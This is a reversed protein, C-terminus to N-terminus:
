RIAKTKALEAWKSKIGTPSHLETLPAAVNVRGLARLIRRQILREKRVSEREREYSEALLEELLARCEEPSQKKNM